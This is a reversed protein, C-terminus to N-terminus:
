IGGASNVHTLPGIETHLSFFNFDKVIGIVNLLPKGEFQKGIPNKWGFKKVAAENIIVSANSDTSHLPSFSRGEVIKMQMTNIYDPDVYSYRMM